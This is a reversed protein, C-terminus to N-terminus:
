YKTGGGGGLAAIHLATQGGADTAEINAGNELLVQLVAEHEELVAEYLATLGNDNKIEVGAGKELLAQVVADHV